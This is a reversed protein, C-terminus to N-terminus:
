SNTRDALRASQNLIIISQFKSKLKLVAGDVMFNYINNKQYIRAGNVIVPDTRRIPSYIVRYNVIIPLKEDVTMM